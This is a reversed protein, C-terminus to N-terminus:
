AAGRELEDALERLKAVAISVPLAAPADDTHFTHAVACGPRDPDAGLTIVTSAYYVADFLDAPSAQGSM